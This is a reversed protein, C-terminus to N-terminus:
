SAASVLASVFGFFGFFVFAFFPLFCRLESVSSSGASFGDFRIELVFFGSVAEAAVVVETQSEQGVLFAPFRPALLRQEPQPPSDCDNM